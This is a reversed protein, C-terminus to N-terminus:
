MAKNKSMMITEKEDIEEENDKLRREEEVLM